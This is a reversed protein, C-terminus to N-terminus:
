DLLDKPDLQVTIVVEETDPEAYAEAVCGNWKAYQEALFGAELQFYGNPRESRTSAPPILTFLRKNGKSKTLTLHGFQAESFFSSLEEETMIPFQRALRKGAWYIVHRYDSGLLDSLVYDRILETSFASKSSQEM